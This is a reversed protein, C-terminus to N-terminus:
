IIRILNRYIKVRKIVEEYKSQDYKYSELKYFQNICEDIDVNNYKLIKGYIEIIELFSFDQYFASKKKQIAYEKTGEEFFGTEIKLIDGFIFHPGGSFCCRIKDLLCHLLFHEIKTAFILRDKRNFPKLEKLTEDDSIQKAYNTRTAIDDIIKEDVHHIDMWEKGRTRPNNDYDNSVPGNKKYLFECFNDYITEVDVSSINDNEFVEKVRNFNEKNQLLFEPNNFLRDLIKKEIICDELASHANITSIGYMLAIYDKAYSTLKPAKEKAFARANFFTFDEMGILGHRLFYIELFVRDFFNSGSWIVITKNKLNFKEIIYNVEEQTLSTAKLLEKDSIKNIDIALNTKRNELPLYKCFYNNENDYVCIEIIDDQIFDLGTTEIDLVVYESDLFYNGLKSKFSSEIKAKPSFAIEVLQGNIDLKITRNGYQSTPGFIYSNKKEPKAFKKFVCYDGAWEGEFNLNYKHILKYADIENGLFSLREYKPKGLDEYDIYNMLSYLSNFKKELLVHSTDKKM